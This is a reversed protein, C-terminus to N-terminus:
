DYLAEITKKVESDKVPEEFPMIVDMSQHRLLRGDKLKLYLGTESTSESSEEVYYLSVVPTVKSM